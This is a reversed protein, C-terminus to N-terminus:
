STNLSGTVGTRKMVTWMIKDRVTLSVGVAGMTGDSSFLAM